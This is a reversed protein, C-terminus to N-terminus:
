RRVRQDPAQVVTSDTFNNGVDHRFRACACRYDWDFGYNRRQDALGPEDPEAHNVLSLTETVFIDSISEVGGVM